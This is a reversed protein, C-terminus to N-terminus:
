APRPHADYYRQIADAFPTGTARPAGGELELRRRALRDSLRCAYEERDERKRLARDLTKKVTRGTDPDTFRARWWTRAKPDPRLLVVGAHKRTKRKATILGKRKSSRESWFGAAKLGSTRSSRISSRKGPYSVVDTLM